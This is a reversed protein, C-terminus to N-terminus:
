GAARRGVRARDLRDVPARAARVAVAIWAAPSSARMALMVSAWVTAAGLATLAAV